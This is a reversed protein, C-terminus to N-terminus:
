LSFDITKESVGYTEYLEQKAEAIALDIIEKVREPPKALWKKKFEAKKLLYTEKCTDGSQYWDFDHILNFVDWVLETIERDEFVNGKPKDGSYGFIEDKARRDAYEFYGGSM